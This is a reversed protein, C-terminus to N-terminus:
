MQAFRLQQASDLTEYFHLLPPRIGDVAAGIASLRARMLDLRGVPTLATEASCTLSDASRLSAAALEYLAVRQADSLRADREIRRIPWDRLTAALQECSTGPWNASPTRDVNVSRRRRSEQRESTRVSASPPRLLLRAKQEDDLASYFTQMAPRVADLAALTSDIGRMLAVLRTGFSAPIERPCDTMLKDVAAAASNRLAELAGRQTEDPRM